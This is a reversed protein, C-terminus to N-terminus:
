ALRHDSYPIIPIGSRWKGGGQIPSLERVVANQCCIDLQRRLAEDTESARDKRWSLVALAFLLAAIWARSPSAGSSLISASNKIFLDIRTPMEPIKSEIVSNFSVILLISISFLLPHSSFNNPYVSWFAPTMIGVADLTPSVGEGVQRRALHDGTLPHPWM